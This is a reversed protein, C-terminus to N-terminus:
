VWLQWLQPITSTEALMAPGAKQGGPRISDNVQGVDQNVEGHAAQFEAQLEPDVRMALRAPPCAFLKQKKQNKKM